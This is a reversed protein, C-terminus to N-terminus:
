FIGKDKYPKLTPKRFEEFKNENDNDNDYENRNFLGFINGLKESESNDKDFDIKSDDDIDQKEQNSNNINQLETLIRNLEEYNNGSIYENLQQYLGSLQEKQEPSLKQIEALIQQILDLYNNYNNENLVYGVRLKRM